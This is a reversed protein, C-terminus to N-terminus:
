PIPVEDGSAAARSVGELAARRLAAPEREGRDFANMLNEALRKTLGTEIEGNLSTVSGRFSKAADELVASLLRIADPDYVRSFPM